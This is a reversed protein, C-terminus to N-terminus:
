GPLPGPPVTVRRSRPAIGQLAEGLTEMRLPKELVAAMGCAKCRAREERMLGATLALIAPPNAGAEALIAETAAFGDMGPMQCDMLIVDYAKARARAVAEQGDAALDARYGLRALQQLVVRQNVPNDEAVLIDLPAPGAAAPSWSAAERGPAPGASRCELEVTFASGRGLESEVRVTGGMSAALGRVIALGLGTGGFRRATSADVQMYPSFIRELAEPSIGIGEDRVTFIMTLRGDDRAEARAAVEISGRSTFKVANSLLNTLIQRIRGSDGEARDPLGEDRFVLSLGKAAAAKGYVEALGRLLSRPDFPHPDLELRDAEIKNYDLIDNLLSLMADGCERVLKLQEITEAERSTALLLDTIGLIGNMPTRIEHSMVAVFDAKTAYARALELNAKRLRLHAEVQNALRQLAQRQRESLRKPKQDIVCLTGLNLGEGLSLPVGAYFVVRPDGTVLPNDKFRPDLRSDEVEFLGQGLIAHACFAVERPTESAEVGVSSKFWQRAGDVLSVLCIPTECIEAALATLDDYLPEPGTDLIGLERLAALRRAENEPLPAAPM